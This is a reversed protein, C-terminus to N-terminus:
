YPNKQQRQDAEQNDTQWFEHILLVRPRVLCGSQNAGARKPQHRYQAIDGRELIERGVTEGVSREGRYYGVVVRPQREARKVKVHAYQEVWDRHHHEDDDGGHAEHYVDVRKAVHVALLAELAIIGEQRQECHRHEAKHQGGVDELHVHEPLKHSNARIQEDAEVVRQVCGYVCRLLREDHRAKGVQEKEDADEHEAVVCAREVEREGSSLNLYGLAHGLEDLAVSRTGNGGTAEDQRCGKHEHEDTTRTLRGHEGQVDPQWIGHFAWCRHRGQYM